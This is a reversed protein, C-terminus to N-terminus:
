RTAMGKLEYQAALTQWTAFGFRHPLSPQRKLADRWRTVFRERSAAQHRNGRQFSDPSSSNNELNVIASEPQYYVHCNKERVKFGYDAAGYALSRFDAAFGNLEQFLSRRTALLAGSCYDVERVFNYLPADVQFDLDGFGGISGDSFVVGGAELLRGDSCIHKGGVVGANSYDRFIRLLPPLWGAMPLSQSSLFVLIEGTAAQAGRNCAALFGGAKRNSLIKLREDSKALRKLLDPTKDTSADNIVIIEGKFNQPLTDRVAALCTDTQALNNYCPIIISATLTEAATVKSKWDIELEAGHDPGNPGQSFKIVAAKAVRRAETLSVFDSSSIAVVDVSEDMYPLVRDTTAPSFIACQPLSAALNLGTNWDLIAPDQDFQSQYAAVMGELQTQWTTSQTVATERLAFILCTDEKRVLLRYHSELYRRFEVYHDLWWLMTNPLLLYDGGKARLAELHAIAAASNAPHHGTYARDQTQPFHWARRGYLKLLENDGKAAVIVTADTPLSARVIERIGRILQRYHAAKGHTDQKDVEHSSANPQSASLTDQLEYLAAHIEENQSSLQDRERNADLLMERLEGRERSAEALEKQLRDERDIVLDVRSALTKMQESQQTIAQRLMEREQEVAEAVGQLTALQIQFGGIKEDRQGVLSTQRELELRLECIAADRQTVEETSRKAWATQEGLEEQVKRIAGDRAAVTRRLQEAEQNTLMFKQEISTLLHEGEFLGFFSDPLEEVDSAVGILYVADSLGKESNVDEFNGKFTSFDASQENRIPAVLSGHCIRQGIIINNKFYTNLLSKFEELYLEKVHYPNAYGTLDSYIRKDPTSIILIGHPRLVRKIEALMKEHQDHHELTEFSVVLDVSDTDLPIKSCMGVQFMLNDRAYVSKAHEVAEPSVDIGIVQDAVQALLNSGYGEGCALDLVIKNKAVERALAYRHLHEFANDGEVSPVLREGTWPLELDLSQEPEM